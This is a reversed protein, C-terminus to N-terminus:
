RLGLGQPLFMPEEAVWALVKSGHGHLCLQAEGVRKRAVRDWIPGPLCSHPTQATLALAKLEVSLDSSTHSHMLGTSVQHRGPRLYLVPGLTAM